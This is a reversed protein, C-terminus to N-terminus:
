GAPLNGFRHEQYNECKWRVSAASRRDLASVTMSSSM